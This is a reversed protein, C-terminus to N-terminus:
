PLISSVFAANNNDVITMDRSDILGDSNVDVNFDYGFASSLNDIPTMDFSEVLGNQNVDGGFIAYHSGPGVMLILNNGFVKSPLDYAYNITSGGFSVPVAITTEISTRHRITIYYSGNLGYPVTTISATGNTSLPVDTAAFVITAYTTSSHLEVTIHDASGDLWHQGFADYARRMTGAGNYLGELM